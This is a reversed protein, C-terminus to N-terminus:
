VLSEPSYLSMFGLGKRDKWTWGKRALYSSTLTAVLSDVQTAVVKGDVLIDLKEM